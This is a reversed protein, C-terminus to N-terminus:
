TSKNNLVKMILFHPNKMLKEYKDPEIKKFKETPQPEIMKDIQFYDLTTNIIEQFARRYFPVEIIKGGKEWEDVINETDFYDNNQSLKFDMFPHHVSFLLKGGPKLIRRFEKFTRNWDKIYHLVLSSVILDFSGNEFPLREELNLCYVKVKNGTRRKTAAVMEPSLDAAIVEAGLNVFQHSYWGAACGADLIKMNQVNPPLLKMMAPREYETNFPSDSDVNHEYDYALQNYADEIKSHM